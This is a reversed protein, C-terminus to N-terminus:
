LFSYVWLVRERKRDCFTLRCGNAMFIFVICVHIAHILDFFIIWRTCAASQYYIQIFTHIHPECSVAILCTLCRLCVNCQTYCDFCSWGHTNFLISIFHWLLNTIIFNSQHLRLHVRLRLIRLRSVHWTTYICLSHMYREWIRGFHTCWECIRQIWTASEYNCWCNRMNKKEESSVHFEWAFFVWM